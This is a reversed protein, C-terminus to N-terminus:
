ARNIVVTDGMEILSDGKPIVTSGNGKHIVIVLTNPPLELDKVLRGRWKHSATVEIEELKVQEDDVYTEGSIIVNDDYKLVTNGNPILTQGERKIMVILTNTALALNRIMRGIWPHNKGLHINLLKFAADEYDNFTKLVDSTEDVM